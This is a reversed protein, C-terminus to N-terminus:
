VGPRECAGANHRASAEDDVGAPFECTGFWKYRRRAILRYVADRAPRPILLAVSLVPWPWRLHRLLRLAATSRVQAREDEILVFTDLQDPDADHQELLARGRDSQLPLFTLRGPKMRRRAFRVVRNCLGCVGDFLVLAGRDSSETSHDPDPNM